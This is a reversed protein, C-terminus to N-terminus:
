KRAEKEGDMEALEDLLTEVRSAESRKRMRAPGGIPEVTVARSSKPVLREVELPERKSAADSSDPPSM